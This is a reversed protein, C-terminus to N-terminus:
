YLRRRGRISSSKKLIDDLRGVLIDPIQITGILSMPLSVANNELNVTTQPLGKQIWHRIVKETLRTDVFGTRFRKHIHRILAADSFVAAPELTRSEDAHISEFLDGTVDDSILEGRHLRGMLELYHLFEHALVAHITGKLGYAVLPASIQIMVQLVDQMMVPVTRAFLIGYGHHGGPSVLTSPEIYAAPYDLGSAREIRDIGGTVHAFRSLVADCIKDPISGSLRSEKIAALPDM